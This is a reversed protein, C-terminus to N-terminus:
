KLKGVLAHGSAAWKKGVISATRAVDLATAVADLDDDFLDSYIDLTMAASAHGLMRQIVLVNAGSSVALSAATHRLDHRTLAEPFDQDLERATTLARIWWGNRSDPPRVYDLGDGFLLSSRDKGQCERALEDALFAPFPVSRAEHSKPSGVHITGAVMVANEEVNVRRRLMDVSKVRLGTAEGWRLGTYALFRVLTAHNGSNRALAEVQEHSLYSRKRASKRPLNVGRAPNSLIRRDKVATDLISALVGYVRLVTTAGRGLSIQSIWAQVDSHRVQGVSVRGWRPEVYLRWAIELPRLSSPKLHTQQALWDPGLEGVLKRASDADIYEGRAKSVEVTALFLEAERKSKFGRKDTQTRDPKRYRVRYRRGSATEYPTVSGM